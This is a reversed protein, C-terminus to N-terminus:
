DQLKKMLAAIGFKTGEFYKAQKFYPIITSDVILKTDANSIQKEIGYGNSIFIKRQSPSIALVCGNNKEKQGVGWQNGVETAFDQLTCKGQM